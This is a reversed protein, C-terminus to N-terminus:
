FNLNAGITLVKTRPYPSYDFGPTLSSGTATSVEPDPGSYKTFTFLNQGSVYFRASVLKLRKIINVPLNYGLQVTKVRLYSGDEVIRTSYTRTGSAFANARPYLNSPNEPTWRNAYTAYQNTNVNGLNGTTGSSGAQPASTGGEMKVRNADLIDNGYSWQLFVDLDFNRYTFNNSVGGFHVPYPHGIVTYDNQDLVGDNNIDRFKPDGPQVSTASSVTTNIGSLTSKTGYYPLGDKLVYFYNGPAGNPVKYFDSLQYMGDAIFGYFQAVPQGVKAVYDPVSGVSADFARTTLLADQGSSLSLVKNRNFSINFSTSWTFNKKRMNITSLAFEFGENSVEGINVFASTFGTTYPMSANLLLNKTVKRYYDTEIQVRDNFLSLDLGIDTQLGTEWKLNKNAMSSVVINYVNTENFSYYSGSLNSTNATLQTLYPFDSVRNNGTAGYSARLKADSIFRLKKMFSENSLRWAVAGSPFYGWRNEPAFKSSGDARFSLTFLYNEKFSYNVRGLYSLLGNLAAPQSSVTYPIGQGIGKIGLSENPLNTAAFGSNRGRISQQTFGVVANILHKDGIAKNYSLTNENVFSTTSTNSISGNVGYTAGYTTLPSGSNTKSNHFIDNEGNIMNVGATVRLTLDKIIKYNLYANGTLTTTFRDNVENLTSIYPNVRGAPVGGDTADDVVDNYVFSNADASNSTAVPRFTWLSLMFNWNGNNVVQGTPVNQVSPIQGYSKVYSYNVNVGVKLKDNLDQDLTFRSQYRKFGSNIVLGVQDAYSASFTYATKNPRGSISIYHNQFAPADNLVLSQWDVGKVNKYDELTKGNSFFFLNAYFPNIDNQLRVYEYPDMLKMLKTPKQAGVYGNYNVVPKASKGRKTTVIIVGNSGRAGYIATASADRLVEISEVEAPNISNFNADEQPFGDIVYLPASSQTVSGIGRIVIDSNAGPQGDSSTVMVGAVRGGLADDISKVPAKQLDQVNVRGVSGTLDKKRVAGYGIVVVDELAASGGRSLQISGLNNSAPIELTAYGVHSIVLIANEITKITFSGSSDTAVGKASGKVKVSAGGLPLHNAADTVRGSVTQAGAAGCCALLLFVGWLGNKGPLLRPCKKLLCYLVSM